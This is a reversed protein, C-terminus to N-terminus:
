LRLYYKWLCLSYIYWTVNRLQGTRWVTGTGPTLVPPDYVDRAQLAAPAAGVSVFLASFVAFLTMFLNTMMMKTQM